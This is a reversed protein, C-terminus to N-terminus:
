REVFLNMKKQFVKNLANQSTSWNKRSFPPLCKKEKVWKQLFSITVEDHPYGSGISGFKKALKSIVKDREVKAIISAASVIPYRSDAKHESKIICDFSCYKKIRKAFNEEIRDPADVFVVEPKVKLNNLLFGVKMAEIENLSKRDMLLDLEEAALQTSNLECVTKKIKRFCSNREKASLLKSDKVGLDLLKEEEKKEICAVALVMPGFVPGRGAEDIGAILM